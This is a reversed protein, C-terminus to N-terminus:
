MNKVTKVCWVSTRKISANSVETPTPLLSILCISRAVALVFRSSFIDAINKCINM